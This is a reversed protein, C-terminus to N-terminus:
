AIVVRGAGGKLNGRRDRVEVREFGSTATPPGSVDPRRKRALVEALEAAETLNRAESGPVTITWRRMQTVEITYIRFPRRAPARGGGSGKGPPRSAAPKRPAKRGSAAKPAAGSRPAKRATRSDGAPAKRVHVSAM